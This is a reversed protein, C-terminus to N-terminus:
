GSARTNVAKLDILTGTVVSALISSYFSLWCIYTNSIGCRKLTYSNYVCEGIPRVRIYDM